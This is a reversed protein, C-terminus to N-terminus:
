CAGKELASIVECLLDPCFGIGVRVMRKGVVVEVIGRREPVREVLRVPAFAPATRKRDDEGLNRVWREIREKKLGHRKAFVAKSEGSAVFAKVMERAEEETWRRAEPPRWESAGGAAM